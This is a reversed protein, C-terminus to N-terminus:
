SLRISNQISRALVPLNRRVTDAIRTRKMLRVKSVLIAIPVAKARGGGLKKRYARAFRATSTRTEKLNEAFLVVTGRVRLFFANGARMLDAVVRRFRKDSIRVLPILLGRSRSPSITAGTEFGGIWPLRLAGVLMMAPVDRRKSYVKATWPNLFKASKVRFARRAEGKMASRMAPVVTNMGTRIGGLIEGRKGNQWRKLNAPDFLGGTHVVVKM